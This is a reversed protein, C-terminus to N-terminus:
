FIIEQLLVRRVGEMADDLLKHDLASIGGACAAASGAVAKFVFDVSPEFVVAGTNKGHGIGAWPGISALEEDGVHGCGVKVAFVGNETMHGIPHISHVGDSAAVFNLFNFNEIGSVVEKRSLFLADVLPIRHQIM